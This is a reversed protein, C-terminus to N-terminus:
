KRCEAAGEDRHDFARCLSRRIAEVRKRELPETMVLGIAIRGVSTAGWILELHKEDRLEVAIRGDVGDGVFPRLRDRVDSLCATAAITDVPTGRNALSLGDGDAVFASVAGTTEMVWGLVAELRREVPDAKPFSPERASVSPGSGADGTGFRTPEAAAGADPAPLNAPGAVGAAALLADLEAPEPLCPSRDTM